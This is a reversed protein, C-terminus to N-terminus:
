RFGPVKHVDFDRSVSSDDFDQVIIPLHSVTLAISSGLLLLIFVPLVLVLALALRDRIIQILEKRTQALIRRM